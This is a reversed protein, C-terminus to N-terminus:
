DAIETDRPPPCVSTCTRPAVMARLTISETNHHQPFFDFLPREFNSTSFKIM